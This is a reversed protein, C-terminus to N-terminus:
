CASFQLVGVPVRRRRQVDESERIQRAAHRRSSRPTLPVGDSMLRWSHDAVSQLLATVPESGLHPLRRQERSFPGGKQIRLCGAVAELLVEMPGHHESRRRDITMALM